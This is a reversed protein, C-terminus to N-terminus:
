HLHPQGHQGGGGPRAPGGDGSPISVTVSQGAYIDGQYAYSYYQELKMTRDDVLQAITVGSGIDDGM